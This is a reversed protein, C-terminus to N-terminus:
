GHDHAGLAARSAARDDLRLAASRLCIDGRMLDADACIRAQALDAMDPPCTQALLTAVAACDDPHMRVTIEGMQASVQQALQTIRRAFPAADTDIAQGALHSALQGVAQQLQGQMTAIQAAPPNAVLQLARALSQATSALAARDQALEALIEARIQARLSPQDLNAVPAPRGVPAPPPAPPALDAPPTMQATASPRPDPLAPPDPLAAAAPPQALAVLPTPLFRGAAAIQPLHASRIFREAQGSAQPDPVLALPGRLDHSFSGDM